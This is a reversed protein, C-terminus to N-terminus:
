QQRGDMFAAAKIGLCKERIKFYNKKKNAQACVQNIQWALAL